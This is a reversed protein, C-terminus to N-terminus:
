AVGAFVNLNVYDRVYNILDDTWGNLEELEKMSFVPNTELSAFDREDIVNRVIKAM